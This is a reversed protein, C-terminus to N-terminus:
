FQSKWQRLLGNIDAQQIAKGFNAGDDFCNLDDCNLDVATGIKPVITQTM